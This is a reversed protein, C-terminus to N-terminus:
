QCHVPNQVYIWLQTEIIDFNMTLARTKCQIIQGLTAMVIGPQPSSAAKGTLLSHDLDDQQATM